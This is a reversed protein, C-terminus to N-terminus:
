AEDEKALVPTYSNRLDTESMSNYMKPFYTYGLVETQTDFVPCLEFVRSQVWGDKVNTISIYWGAFPNGVDNKHVWKQGVEVEPQTLRKKLLNRLNM